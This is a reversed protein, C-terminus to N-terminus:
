GERIDVFFFGVVFYDFHTIRGFEDFRDQVHNFATFVLSLLCSGTEFDAPFSETDSAATRYRFGKKELM